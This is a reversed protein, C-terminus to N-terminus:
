QQTKPQEEILMLKQLRKANKTREMVRRLKRKLNFTKLHERLDSIEMHPAMEVIWPDELAEDLSTRMNPNPNLFYKIFEKADDSIGDWEPSPFELIGYRYEESDDFSEPFPSKGSLLCYFICGLSWIDATKDYPVNKLVEPAAYGLTGFYKEMKKNKEIIGSLGFDAIKIIFDGEYIEQSNEDYAKGDNNIPKFLLNEPKLDRHVVNNEHLVKMGILVQQAIKAADKESFPGRKVIAKFLEGGEVYEM